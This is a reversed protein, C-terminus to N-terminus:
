YDACGIQYLKFVMTFFFNQSRVVAIRKITGTNANDVSENNITDSDINIAKWRLM